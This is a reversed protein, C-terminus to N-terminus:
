GIWRWIGAPWGSLPMHAWTAVLWLATGIVVAGLRSRSWGARGSVLGLFPGYSTQASWPIWLEPRLERKKADQLAAGVLALVVISGALIIQNWTPRVVIHAIGWLAFGWAM